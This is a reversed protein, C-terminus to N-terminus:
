RGRHVVWGPGDELAGSDAHGPVLDVGVTLDVGEPLQWRVQFSKLVGFARRGRDALRQGASLRLLAKRVLM